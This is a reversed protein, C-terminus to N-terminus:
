HLESLLKKASQAADSQPYDRQLRQWTSRASSTKNTAKYVRGIELLADPVKPSAPFQSILTKFSEM